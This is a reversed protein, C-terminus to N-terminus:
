AEDEPNAVWVWASVWTGNDTPSLFPFDDIEVDDTQYENRAATILDDSVEAVKNLVRLVDSQKVTGAKLANELQTLINNM